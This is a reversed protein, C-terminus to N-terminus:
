LAEYRMPQGECKWGLQSLGNHESAQATLVHSGSNPNYMRYIVKDGGSYFAVGEDKWGLKVLAAKENEDITFHHYGTSNCLRYVPKGTKPAIWAVGEYHWGADQAANAEKLSLTYLHDGTNKNYLRYVSREAEQKIPDPKVPKPAETKSEEKKKPRFGGLVGDYHFITQCFAQNSPNVVNQNQGLAIFTGNGLDKRFIAIHSLPCEACNTWVLIDGDQFPKQVEDYYNLIGSSGRLNWIDKVFGSLSCHYIPNGLWQSYYMAGDWCQPGYFGDLDYAKGIVENYFDQINKSM